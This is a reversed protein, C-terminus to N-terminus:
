ANLETPLATTGRASVKDESCRGQTQTGAERMRNGTMDEATSDYLQYFSIFAGGGGGLFFFFFFFFGVGM